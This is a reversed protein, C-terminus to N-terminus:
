FRRISWYKKGNYTKYLVVGKKSLNYLITKTTNWSMNDAWKSIENITAWRNLRYMARIVRKETGTFITKAIKM